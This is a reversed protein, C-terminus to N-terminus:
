ILAVSQISVIYFSWFLLCCDTRCCDTEVAYNPENQAKRQHTKLETNNVIHIVVYGVIVTLIVLIARNKDSM